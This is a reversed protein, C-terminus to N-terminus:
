GGLYKTVQGTQGSGTVENNPNSVEKEGCFWKQTAINKGEQYKKTTYQLVQDPPVCGNCGKIWAHDKLRCINDCGKEYIKNALRCTEDCKRIKGKPCPSGYMKEELNKVLYTQEAYGAQVKIPAYFNETTFTKYISLLLIIGLLALCIFLIQQKKYYM